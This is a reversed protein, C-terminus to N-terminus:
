KFTLVRLTPPGFFATSEAVFSKYVQDGQLSVGGSTGVIQIEMIIFDTVGSDAGYDRVNAIRLAEGPKVQVTVTRNVSDIAFQESPLERWERSHLQASPLTAPKTTKSLPESSNGRIRYRVEIPRDSENVVVFDVSFSCGTLMSGGLLLLVLYTYRM